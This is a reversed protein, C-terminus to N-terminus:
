KPVTLLAHDLHWLSTILLTKRAIPAGLTASDHFFRLFILSVKQPNLITRPRIACPPSRPLVKLWPMRIGPCAPACDWSACRAQTMDAPQACLGDRRSEGAAGLLRTFGNRM